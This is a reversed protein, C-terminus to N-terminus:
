VQNLDADAGHSHKRKAQCMQLTALMLYVSVYHMLELKNQSEASLSSCSRLSILDFSVELCLYVFLHQNTRVFEKTHSIKRVETELLYLSYAPSHTPTEAQYM